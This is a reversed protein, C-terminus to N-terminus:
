GEGGVGVDCRQRARVRKRQALLFYDGLVIRALLRPRHHNKEPHVLIPRQTALHLLTPFLKHPLRKRPRRIKSHIDRRPPLPSNRSPLQGLLHLPPPKREM